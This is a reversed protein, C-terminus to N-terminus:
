NSITSSVTSYFSLGVISYLSPISISHMSTRFLTLSSKPTHHIRTVLTYGVTTFPFLHLNSLLASAAAAAVPREMSGRANLLILNSTVMKKSGLFLAQYANINPKKERGGVAGWRTGVSRTTGTPKKSSVIIKLVNTKYVRNTKSSTSSGSLSRVESSRTTLRWPQFLSPARSLLFTLRREDTLASISCDLLQAGYLTTSFQLMMYWGFKSWVARCHSKAM